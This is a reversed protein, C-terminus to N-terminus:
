SLAARRTSNNAKEEAEEEDYWLDRQVLLVGTCNKVRSRANDIYIMQWGDETPIAYKGSYSSRLMHLAAWIEKNIMPAKPCHFTNLAVGAKVTVRTSFNAFAASSEPGVTTYNGIEDPDRRSYIDILADILLVVSEQEIRRFWDTGSNWIYTIGFDSITNSRLISLSKTSSPSELSLCQTFPIMTFYAIATLHLLQFYM